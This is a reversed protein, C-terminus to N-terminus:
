LKRQVSPTVFATRHALRATDTLQLRARLSLDQSSTGVMVEIEGEEVILSFDNDLFALQSTDFDFEVRCREGADLSVRHVGALQRVPRTISGVVDRVYLQVVEDGARDGTNAVTCGITVKETARVEVASLTLDSLEFTTYSLGHGFGWAPASTGDVYARGSSTGSGHKHGHYSPTAGVGAPFSVPLKGGPNSEGFLAAAIAEPGEPGPHWAQLIARAGDLDAAFDLPRGSLVVAVTPVGTAIVERALQSQAGPLELTKRDRGEGGTADGVWGTKEGIVLIAVDCARAAAVAEAIGDTEPLTWDCGAVSLSRNARAAIAEAITVMNPYLGNIAEDLEAADIMSETSHFIVSVVDLMPDSSATESGDSVGAMTAAFGREMARGLEIAAAPTYAAFLGRLTQAMPGIVAISGQEAALPLVGDNELLVLSADTLKRSLELAEATAFVKPALDPDVTPSDFLGVQFRQTLSRRVASDLIAEDLAGSEVLEPLFKYGIAAPLEIDLGASVAQRGADADDAAVAQPSRLRTVASYDAVVCGDFGLRDRLLETLIEYSGAVPVGDVENYSNMVSALGAERIAGEFPLAFVEHLTRPGIPSVTQNLAGESYSYGLFHKGTAITGHRLDDTQMGRVFAIGMACCLYPDEGYTEHVRGWRADRNVDLVPSLVHNIGVARAERSAVATMQEILRPAFTSALGIATPFATASAQVLGSLAENHVMAPIKLRTNDVLWQQIMNLKSALERPESALGGGVCLHGVGHPILEAMKDVDPGDPGMFMAPFIGVIQAAKEELSMRSLLDDVRQRISVSPDLYAAAM